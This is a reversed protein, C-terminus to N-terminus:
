TDGTKDDKNNEVHRSYKLKMADEVVLALLDLATHKKRADRSLDETVTKLHELKERIQQRDVAHVSFQLMETVDKLELLIDEISQVITVVSIIIKFTTTLIDKLDELIQSTDKGISLM